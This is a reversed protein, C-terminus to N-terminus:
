QETLELLRQALEFGGLHGEGKTFYDSKLVKPDTTVGIGATETMDRDNNGNGIAMTDKLDINLHKCLNTLATGKTLRSPLIDFAEGSWIVQFEGEPDVKKVIERVKPDDTKPTHMTILFQKPEFAEPLKTGDAYKELATRIVRMKGLTKEDFKEHQIVQGNILSFIGIEGILAVNDWLLDNFVDKLYITSRGSNIAVFFHKKLQNLAEKVDKDLLRTRVILTETTPSEKARIYTGQKITVGDVDFCVLKIDKIDDKTLESLPKVSRNYTRLLLFTM